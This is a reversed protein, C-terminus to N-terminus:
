IGLLLRRRSAFCAGDDSYLLDRFSSEVVFSLSQPQPPSVMDINNTLLSVTHAPQLLVTDYYLMHMGKGVIYIRTYVHPMHPDVM